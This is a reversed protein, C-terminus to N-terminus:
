TKKDLLSLFEPYDRIYDNADYYDSAFVLLMADPSYKYQIGWTMPPLHIGKNPANLEVEIKKHGDDAIVSCAGHICILFQHCQRHAHEGRVEKSSVGYIMFFRKVSFPIQKEFEGVILDGRLDRIASLYHINVGKVSTEIAATVEPMIADNRSYELSNKRSDVDVYGVIRAPNGYVIAGQPVSRTVVAGAGVMANAGITLGPLITANAGISAGQHVLTRAYVEPYKKSRPFKDNSFTVNPGIFVDDGITIGDWLQVGCKITVRDGVIVDNEIFVGNCLNCEKGIYAGKLIHAFAWIRTGIGITTSECLAKDHIFIDCSNVTM